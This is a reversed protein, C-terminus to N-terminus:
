DNMNTRVRQMERVLDYGSVDREYVKRERMSEEVNEAGILAVTLDRIAEIKLIEVFMYMTFQGDECGYRNDYETKFEQYKDFLEKPKLETIM